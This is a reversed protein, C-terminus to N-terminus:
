LYIGCFETVEGDHSPPPLVMSGLQRPEQRNWVGKLVLHLQCLISHDLATTLTVMIALYNLWAQNM